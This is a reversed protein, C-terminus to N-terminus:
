NRVVNGLKDAWKETYFKYYGNKDNPNNKYCIAWILSPIAVVFLYLPGLILSQKSHGYEHNKDNERNYVSISCIIIQGLSIGGKMRTASFITAYERQTCEVISSRYWAFLLLGIFLQPLQWISLLIEKITKMNITKVM